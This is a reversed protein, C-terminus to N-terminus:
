RREQEEQLIYDRCLSFANLEGTWYEALPLDHLEEAIGRRKRACDIQKHIKDLVTERMENVSM